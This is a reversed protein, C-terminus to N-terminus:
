FRIVNGTCNFIFKEGFNEKIIELNNEGTCHSVAIFNINMKKLDAITKRLREEGAEVLHTGGIVGCIKKGSRKEITKLINMIGPHSCGVIVVLGKESELAIAIEDTFFDKTYMSTVEEVPLQSLLGDCSYNNISMTTTEEAAQVQYLAKDEFCNNSSEEEKKVFFYPNLPEYEVTREFNRHLIVGPFIVQTDEKVECVIVGQKELEQRSFAIGINKLTGDKKEYYKGQFFDKGVYMKEVKEEQLLRKVGGAHDYHAHSILLASLDELSIGMKKVNEYFIGSQGTDMLIRVPPELNVSEILISLGHECEYREEKDMHNEILTTLKWKM